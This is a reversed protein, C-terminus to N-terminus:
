STCSHHPTLRTPTAGAVTRAHHLGCWCTSSSADHWLGKANHGRPQLRESVPGGHAGGRRRGERRARGPPTLTLWRSMAGRWAPTMKPRPLVALVRAPRTATGASPYTTCCRPEQPSAKPSAAAWLMTPATSHARQAPSLGSGSSPGCHMDLLPTAAPPACPLPFPARAHPRCWAAPSCAPTSGTPPCASLPVSLEPHRHSLVLMLSRGADGQHTYVTHQTHRKRSHQPLPPLGSGPQHTNLPTM